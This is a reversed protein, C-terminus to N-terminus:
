STIVHTVQEGDLECLFVDVEYRKKAKFEAAALVQAKFSTEAWVEKQKGRYLAIYGNLGAHPDVAPATLAVTDEPASHTSRFRNLGSPGDTNLTLAPNQANPTGTM